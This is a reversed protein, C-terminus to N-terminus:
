PILPVRTWTWPWEEPEECLGARVPNYVVYWCAAAFHEESEIFSSWFRDGFLHGTRGHRENFAQAYVGHLRKMGDSLAVRTTELVLHYHTNM